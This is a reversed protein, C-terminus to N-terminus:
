LIECEAAEVTLCDRAYIAGDLMGRVGVSEMGNKELEACTETFSNIASTMREYVTMIGRRRKNQTYM